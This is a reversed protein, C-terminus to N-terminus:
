SLRGDKRIYGPWLIGFHCLFIQPITKPFSFGSLRKRAADPSFERSILFPYQQKVFSNFILNFFSQYRM